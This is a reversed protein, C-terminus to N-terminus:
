EALAVELVKSRSMRCEILVDDGGVVVAELTVVRNRNGFDDVLKLAFDEGGMLEADEIAERCSAIDDNINGAQAAGFATAFALGLATARAIKLM